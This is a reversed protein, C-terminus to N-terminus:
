LKKIKEELKDFANHFTKEDPPDCDTAANRIKEGLYSKDSQNFLNMLCYGDWLVFCVGAGFSGYKIVKLGIDKAKM